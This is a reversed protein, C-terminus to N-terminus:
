RDAGEERQHWVHWDGSTVLDVYHQHLIRQATTADLGWSDLSDGAVVVWRPAEPGTMIGGLEELRPDRVRVPLSWLYEYPSSLGSGAVIDPHGFAVVVGDSPEAHMRLYSVVRADDSVTVPSAVHQVWLVASAVVVCSLCVGLLRRRRSPPVLVLILLVGPVLGTLYHLWYSGGFVVGCLEWLTMGLAGWSVAARLGEDPAGMGDLRSNTRHERLASLVGVAAIVLLVAVGSALSALALHSMRESIAGSASAQIVASAQLRFVVMADWLGPPTTGRLAAAGLVGALVTGSAGLFVGIRTGPRSVRGRSAVLLILAFVFVDVVNQKVLAACMAAAGAGATLLFAHRSWGLRMSAILCVVGILVFPVAIVEGNTEPMGLLPNSLLAVAGVVTVRRTWRQGPSVVHAVVGALLVALGSAVAGLLKVSPATLGAASHGVPGLHAALSFLGLLLPPRDVWYSGYLSSGPSWHQALLLFGSEDPSLPVDVFPLWAAAALVAAVVIGVISWIDGDRSDSPSAVVPPPAGNRVDLSGASNV